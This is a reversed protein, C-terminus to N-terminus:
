NHPDAKPNGETTPYDPCGEQPVWQLERVRPFIGIPLWRAVMLVAPTLAVIVIIPVAYTALQSSIPEAKAWTPSGQWSTVANPTQSPLRSASQVAGASVITTGTVQIDSLLAGGPSYPYTAPHAPTGPNCNTSVLFQLQIVDGDYGSLPITTSHWVNSSPQLGGTTSNVDGNWVQIYSTQGSPSVPTVLLTFAMPPTGTLSNWQWLWHFTIQASAADSLDIPRSILSDWMNPDLEMSSTTPIGAMWVSSTQFNPSTLGHQAYWTGGAVPQLHWLDPPIYAPNGQNTTVFDTGTQQNCTTGPSPESVIANTWSVGGSSGAPGLDPISDQVQLQNIWWGGNYGGLSAGCGSSAEIYGFWIRVSQGAYATLNMKAQTWSFTGGGSAGTFTNIVKCQGGSGYEISGTYGPLPNVIPAGTTPPTCFSTGSLSLSTVSAPEVCVIGGTVSPDLSYKQWWTATASAVYSPITVPSSQTWTIYNSTAANDLVALSACLNGAIYCPPFPSLSTTNYQSSPPGETDIGWVGTCVNFSHGFADTYWTQWVNNDGCNSPPSPAM